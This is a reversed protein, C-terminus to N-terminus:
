AFKLQSSFVAKLKQWDFNPGPDTKRGPSVQDHGLLYKIQHRASIDKILVILAQYQESSFGSDPKGILEIGVSFDNVGSRKDEFFPLSSQGAHWARHEEAVSLWVGGDRDITYHTSVKERDLIEICTEPDLQKSEQEFQAYMSHIVITDVKCNDPRLNYHQLLKIKAKVSLM